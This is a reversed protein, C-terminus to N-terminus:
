TKKVDSRKEDSSSEDEEDRCSKGSCGHQVFDKCTGDNCVRQCYGDFCDYGHVPGDYCEVSHCPRFDYFLGCHGGHCGGWHGCNGGNCRGFPQSPPMGGFGQPSYMPGMPMPSNPNNYGRPSMPVGPMLQPPVGNFTPPYPSMVGRFGPAPYPSPAHFTVPAARFPPMGPPMAPYAVIRSALMLLAPLVLSALKGM